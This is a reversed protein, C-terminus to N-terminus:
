KKNKINKQNSNAKRCDLCYGKMRITSCKPMRYRGYIIHKIQYTTYNENWDCWNFTELKSLIERPSLGNILQYIVYAVRIFHPPEKQRIWVELCPYYHLESILQYNNFEDEINLDEPQEVNKSKYKVQKESLLYLDLSAQKSFDPKNVFSSLNGYKENITGPIRMLARVNGVIHTDATVLDLQNILTNQFSGIIEKSYHHGVVKLYVHYGLGSSIVIVPELNNKQFFKVIKLMDTIAGIGDFDFPIFEMYPDPDFSAVSIFCPNLGNDEKIYKEIEDYTSVKKQYPNGYMRWKGKEIPFLKKINEM